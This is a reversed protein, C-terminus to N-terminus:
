WFEVEFTASFDFTEEKIRQIDVKMDVQTPINLCLAIDLNTRSESTVSLTYTEKEIPVGADRLELLSNIHEDSLWQYRSMYQKAKDLKPDNKGYDRVISIEKRMKEEVERKLEGSGKGYLSEASFSGKEKSKSTRIEVHNVSVKRAGLLGCFTSFLVCKAKAFSYPAESASAYISPDYPSQILITGPNFLGSGKLKNIIPSSKVISTDILCVQDNHFLNRAARGEQNDKNSEQTLIQFGLRSLIVIVRSKEPEESVDDYSM